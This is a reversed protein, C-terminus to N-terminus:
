GRAGSRAAGPVDSPVAFARVVDDFGAARELMWRPHHPSSLIDPWVKDARFRAATPRLRAATSAGPTRGFRQSSQASNQGTFRSRISVLGTCFLFSAVGIAAATNIAGMIKISNPAAFKRASPCTPPTPIKLKDGTCILKPLTSIVLAVPPPGLAGCVIVTVLTPLAASLIVVMADLLWRKESVSVQRVEDVPVLGEIAGPPLQVMLTTKWGATQPAAVAVSVTEDSVALLLGCVTLKDPVPVPGQAV